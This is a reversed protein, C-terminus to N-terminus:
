LRSLHYYSVHLSRILFVKKGKVSSVLISWPDVSYVFQLCEEYFLHYERRLDVKVETM